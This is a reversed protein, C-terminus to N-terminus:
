NFLGRIFEDAELARGFTLTTGDWLVQEASPSGATIIQRVDVGGRSVYVCTRGAVAPFSVTTEGGTAVYEQNYVAGGRVIIAGTSPQTGSVVYAGSGQLSVSYTAIDKYPGNIQLSTLNTKGSIVTFGDAGNDIAFDINISSRSQQFSLM